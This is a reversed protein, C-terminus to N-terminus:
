SRFLFLLSVLYLPYFTLLRLTRAVPARVQFQEGNNPPPVLAMVSPVPPNGIRELLMQSPQGIFGFQVKGKVSLAVNRLVGNPVVKGSLALVAITQTDQAAALLSDLESGTLVPLVNEPISDQARKIAADIDVTDSVSDSATVYKSPNTL